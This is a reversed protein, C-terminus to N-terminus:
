ITIEVKNWLTKDHRYVEFRKNMEWSEPHPIFVCYIDEPSHQAISLLPGLYNHVNNSLPLVMIKVDARGVVLNSFDIGSDRNNVAFESEIIVVSKKAYPLSSKHVSSTTYAKECVHVDYLFESRSFEPNILEKSFVVYHEGTFLEQLRETVRKIFFSSRAKNGKSLERSADYFSLIM